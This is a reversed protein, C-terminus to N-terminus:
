NVITIETSDPLGYAGETIILDNINLQPSNVEVISDNEIGKTVPIKIARYGSDVRMIWFKSQTENTMLSSKTVLFVQQHIKNLFKIVLNLNEPLQRGTEPKILVTQTQNIEDVVPLIRSVSGDLITNDTLYIKCKRGMTLISNYEYPVNVRITLDKISVINCLSGGEAVFVGPETVTLDNVFGESTAIVKIIGFNGISDNDSELAKRERTQIEFLVENKQIEDGFKVNVRTVYGSIPSVVMYKKLYVTTGNFSIENEIDGKIIPEARVSVEPMKEEESNGRTRCSYIFHLLCIALILIFTRKMM